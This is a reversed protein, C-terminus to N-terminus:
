LTNVCIYYLYLYSCVNLDTETRQLLVQFHLHINNLQKIALYRQTSILVISSHVRLSTAAANKISEKLKKMTSHFEKVSTNGYGIRDIYVYIM